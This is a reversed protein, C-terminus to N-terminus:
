IFPSLSPWSRDHANDIIINSCAVGCTCDLHDWSKSCACNPQLLLVPTNKTTWIELRSPGKLSFHPLHWSLLIWMVAEQFAEGQSKFLPPPPVVPLRPNLTSFGETHAMANWSNEVIWPFVMALGKQKKQESAICFSYNRGHALGTALGCMHGLGPGPDSELHELFLPLRIDARDLNYLTCCYLLPSLAVSVQFPLPATSLKLM